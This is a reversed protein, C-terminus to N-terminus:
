GELFGDANVRRSGYFEALIAQAAAATVQPGREPAEPESPPARTREQGHSANEKEPTREQTGRFAPAPCGPVRTGSGGSGANGVSRFSPEPTFPVCTGGEQGTEAEIVVANLIIRYRNSLRGGKFQNECVLHGCEVLLKLASRVARDTSNVAEALTAQSPWAMRTKSNLWKPLALGIRLATETLRRDGAVQLAWEQKLRVFHAALPDGRRGRGLPQTARGTEAM